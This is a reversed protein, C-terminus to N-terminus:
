RATSTRPRASSSTPGPARRGSSATPRPARRPSTSTPPASPSRSSARRRRPPAAAASRRAGARGSGAAAAPRGRRAPAPQRGAEAAARREGPGARSRAVPRGGRGRGTGRVARADASALKSRLEDNERYLRTLEAEVEDLFEDVETEDYGPKLRTSTFQKNAVDEPTLPMADLRRPLRNDARDRVTRSSRRIPHGGDATSPDCGRHRVRVAGRDNASRAILGTLAIGIQVLVVIILVLFSLDLSVRGIRLPPIVRRLAKLPPDTITYIVEAVVLM